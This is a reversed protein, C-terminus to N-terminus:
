ADNWLEMIGTLINNGIVILGLGVNEKDHKERKSIFSRLDSIFIGM